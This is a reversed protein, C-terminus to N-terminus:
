ANKSTAKTDHNFYEKFFQQHSYLSQHQSLHNKLDDLTPKPSQSMWKKVKLLCWMQHQNWPQGAQWISQGTNPDVAYDTVSELLALDWQYATQRAVKLRCQIFESRLWGQELRSHRAKFQRATYTEAVANSMTPSYM